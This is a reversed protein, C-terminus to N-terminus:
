CIFLELSAKTLVFANPSLITRMNPMIIPNRSKKRSVTRPSEAILLAIAKINRLMMTKKMINMVCFAGLFCFSSVEV